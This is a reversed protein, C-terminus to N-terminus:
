WGGIRKNVRRPKIDTPKPSSKKPTSKPPKVKKKLKEVEEKLENILIIAAALEEEAKKYKTLLDNYKMRPM